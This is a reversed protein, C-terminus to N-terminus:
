AGVPSYDLKVGTQLLKLINALTDGSRKLQMLNQEATKQAKNLAAEQIARQQEEIGRILTKINDVPKDESKAATALNQDETKDSTKQQPRKNDTPVVKEEKMKKVVQDPMQGFLRMLKEYEVAISDSIVGESQAISVELSKEMDSKWERSTWTPAEDVFRKMREAIKKQMEDVGSLLFQLPEQFGSAAWDWFSKVTAWITRPINLVSEIFLDSFENLVDNVYFLWKSINDGFNYMESALKVFALSIKDISLTIFTPFNKFVALVSAVFFLIKELVSQLLDGFGSASNGAGTFVNNMKEEFTDGEIGTVIFAAAIAAIAVIILNTPNLLAVMLVTLTKMVVLLSSIAVVLGTVGLAARKSQESMNSLHTIIETVAQITKRMSGSVMDGISVGLEQFASKAIAVDGSVNDIAVKMINLSTGSKASIASLRRIEDGGAAIMAQFPGIARMGAILYAAMQQQEDTLGKMRSGLLDIIDALPKLKGSSDRLDETTLGLMQLGKAATDAGSGIRILFTRLATGAEGGQIMVNGLVGLTGMLDDLSQNAQKGIPGLKQMAEGLLATSNSTNTFTNVLSDAVKNLESSDIAMGRMVGATIKAADALALNDSAALALTPQTADLMEKVSFGQKAFEVMAQAAESASFKTTAGLERAKGELLAMDDATAGTIARVMSMQKEFDVFPSLLERMALGVTALAAAGAISMKTLSDNLGSIASRTSALVGKFSSDKMSLEAFVDAVKLAM